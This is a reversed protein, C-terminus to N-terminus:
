ETLPPVPRMGHIDAHCSGCVVLTKPDRAAMLHAWPPLDQPRGLDALEAVHHTQVEDIRGCSECRGALLRTVLERRKTNVPALRM